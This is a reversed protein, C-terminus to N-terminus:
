ATVGGGVRDGALLHTSFWDAAAASSQEFPTGTYADFHGGPLMEIRKPEHATAFADTAFEAPALEDDPAVLMLLPTPAIRPLVAAPDYALMLEFSRATLENRWAPAREAAGNTFFAYAGQGPMAEGSPAAAVAPVMIPDAGSMRARRDQAFLELLHAREDASFRAEFTRPGNIFAIQGCVAKVRRDLAATVFANAAGFSTGWLGIRDADVDDRLSAYTIADQIGRVQQWPDIESRPTGPVADSAGFGPHDYVVCSLGAAQLVTAYGDLHLEKVGSVGHQLVVCPSPNAADAPFFWGRLTAGGPGTFEIDERRM